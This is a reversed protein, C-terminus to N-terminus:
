KHPLHSSAPIRRPFSLRDTQAPMDANNLSTESIAIHAHGHLTRAKLISLRWATTRRFNTSLCM